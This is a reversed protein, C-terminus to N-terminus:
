LRVLLTLRCRRRGECRRQRLHPRHLSTARQLSRLQLREVGLEIALAALPHCCAAPRRCHCVGRASAGPKSRTTHDTFNVCLTIHQSRSPRPGSEMAKTSAVTYYMCM